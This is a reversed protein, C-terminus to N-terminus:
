PSILFIDNNKAQFLAKDPAMSYKICTIQSTQKGEANTCPIIYFIDNLASM